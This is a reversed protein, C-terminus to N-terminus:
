ALKVVSNNVQVSYRLLLQEILGPVAEDIFDKDPALLVDNDYIALVFLGKDKTKLNATGLMGDRLEVEFFGIQKEIEPRMREALEFIVESQDHM